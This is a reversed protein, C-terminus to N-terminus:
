LTKNSYYNPDFNQGGGGEKQPNDVRAWTSCTYVMFEKFKKELVVQGIKVLNWMTCETSLINISQEFPDENNFLVAAMDM